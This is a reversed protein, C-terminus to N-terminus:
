VTEEITGKLQHMMEEQDVEDYRQIDPDGRGALWRYLKNNYTDTTKIFADTKAQPVDQFSSRTQIRRNGRSSEFLHIYIDGDQENWRASNKFHM